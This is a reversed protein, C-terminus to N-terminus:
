EAACSGCPEGKLSHAAATRASHFRRVTRLRHGQLQSSLQGGRLGPCDLAAHYCDGQGTAYFVPGASWRGRAEAVKAPHEDLFRACVAGYRVPTGSPEVLLADAVLVAPACDKGHASCIFRERDTRWDAPDWDRVREIDSLMDDGRRNDAM